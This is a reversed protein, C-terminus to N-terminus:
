LAAILLKQFLMDTPIMVVLPYLYYKRGCVNGLADAKWLVAKSGFSSGSLTLGAGTFVYGNDKTQVVDWSYAGTDPFPANYSKIFSQADLRLSIVLLLFVMTVNRM